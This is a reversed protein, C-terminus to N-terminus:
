FTGSGKSWFDKLGASLSQLDKPTKLPFWEPPLIRKYSSTTFRDDVLIVFGRDSESRIVRGAAQQVKNLGPYTYAFDFGNGTKQQYYQRIMDREACVQPLGVGVIIAGSLLDGKLDIGEGFIGGMVAFAVLTTEADTTFSNLFDERQQENM